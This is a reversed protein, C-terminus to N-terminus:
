EIVLYEQAPEPENFSMEETSEAISPDAILQDETTPQDKSGDETTDKSNNQSDIESQKTETNIANTNLDQMM